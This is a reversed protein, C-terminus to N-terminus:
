MKAVISNVNLNIVQNSRTKRVSLNHLVRYDYKIKTRTLIKDRLITDHLEPRTVYYFRIKLQM